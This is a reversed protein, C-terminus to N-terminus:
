GVHQKRRYADIFPLAVLVLMLITLTAFFGAWIGIVLAAFVWALVVSLWALGRLLKAKSAAALWLTQRASTLYFLVAALTATLLYAFTM